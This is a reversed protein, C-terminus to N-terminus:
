QFPDSTQTRMQAFLSIIIIIIIIIIIFLDRVADM